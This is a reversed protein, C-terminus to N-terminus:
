FWEDKFEDIYEALISPDLVLEIEVECVINDLNEDKIVVLKLAGNEIVFDFDADYEDCLPLLMDKLQDMEFLEDPEYQVYDDIQEEVYSYTDKIRVLFDNAEM